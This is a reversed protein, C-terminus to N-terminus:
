KDETKPKGNKNEVKAKRRKTTTKKVVKDVSPKPEGDTFKAPVGQPAEQGVTYYTGKWIINHTLKAM